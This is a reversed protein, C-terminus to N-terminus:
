KKKRLKRIYITYFVEFAAIVIIASNLFIFITDNIVVSHIVLFAMAIIYIVAFKLDIMKKHCEVSEFAEFAWACIILIAGLIGSYASLMFIDIM